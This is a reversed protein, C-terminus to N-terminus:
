TQQGKLFNEESELVEQVNTLSHDERIRDLVDRRKEPPLRHFRNRFKSGSVLNLLEIDSMEKM